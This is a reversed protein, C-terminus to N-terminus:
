LDVEDMDDEEELDELDAGIMCLQEFRWMELSVSVLVDGSTDDVRELHGADLVRKLLGEAIATKDGRPFATVSGM